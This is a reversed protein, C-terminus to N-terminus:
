NKNFPGELFDGSGDNYIIVLKKINAIKYKKPNDKQTLLTQLYRQLAGVLDDDDNAIKYKRPNLDDDDAADLRVEKGKKRKYEACSCHEENYGCLCM